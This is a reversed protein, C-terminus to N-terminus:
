PLWFAFLVPLHVRPPQVGRGAEELCVRAGLGLGAAAGSYGLGKGCTGDTLGHCGSILWLMEGGAKLLDMYMGRHFRM